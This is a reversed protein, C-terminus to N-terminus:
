RSWLVFADWSLLGCGIGILGAMLVVVWVGLGEWDRRRVARGSLVLGFAFVVVYNVRM